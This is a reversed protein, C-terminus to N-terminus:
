VSINLSIHIIQNLKIFLITILFRLFDPLLGFVAILMHNSILDNASFVLFIYYYKSIKILYSM